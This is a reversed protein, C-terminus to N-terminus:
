RKRRKVGSLDRAFACDLVYKPTKDRGVVQARGKELQKVWFTHSHASTTREVSALRARRRCAEQAAAEYLKTAIGKRRHAFPVDVSRVAYVVHGGLRSKSAYIEGVRSEGLWAEFHFTNKGGTERERIELGEPAALGRLARGERKRDRNVTAAAIRKCTKEARKGRTYVCSTLIAEYKREDKATWAKPM